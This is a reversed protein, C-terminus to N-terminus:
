ASLCEDSLARQVHGLEDLGRLRVRRLRWSRWGKQNADKNNLCSTLRVTEILKDSSTQLTRLLV